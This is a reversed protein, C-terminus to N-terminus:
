PQGKLERTTVPRRSPEAATESALRAVAVTINDHGGRERALAVLRDCAAVPLAAEVEVRLEEVDVLDHLGDTCAVLIDGDRLTLPEAWFTGEVREHTGVARLLVNRDAHRRAEAASIIGRAVMDRVASHDETLQYIASGRVMHLRSDGVHACFADSGIVAVATCTTGMGALGPDEGAKKFVARNAADLAERLAQGPHGESEYFRKSMTEIVLRSAVEGASHGGMGDAVVILVGRRVLVSPDHPVVVIGSDENVARVCGVDSAVAATVVLRTNAAEAADHPSV